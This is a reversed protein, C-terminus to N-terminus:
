DGVRVPARPAAASSPLHARGVAGKKDCPLPPGRVLTFDPDFYFPNFALDDCFMGWAGAHFIELVGFGSHERTEGGVLRLAGEEEGAARVWQSVRAM